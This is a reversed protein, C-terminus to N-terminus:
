LRHKGNKSNGNNHCSSAVSLVKPNIQQESIKHKLIFNNLRLISGFSFFHFHNKQDFISSAFCNSQRAYSKSLVRSFRDTYIM